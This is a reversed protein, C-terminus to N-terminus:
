PTLYHNKCKGTSKDAQGKSEKVVLDKSHHSIKIVSKEEEVTQSEEFEGQKENTEVEKKEMVLSDKSSQEKIQGEKFHKSYILM